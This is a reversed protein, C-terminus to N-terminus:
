PFDVIVRFILYNPLHRIRIWFLQFKFWFCFDSKSVNKIIFIRNM